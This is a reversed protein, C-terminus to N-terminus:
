SLSPATIKQFALIMLIFIPSAVLLEIANNSAVNFFLPIYSKNSAM